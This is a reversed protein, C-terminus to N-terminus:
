RTPAGPEAKRLVSQLRGKFVSTNVFVLLTESGAKSNDGATQGDYGIEQKMVMTKGLPIVGDNTTELEHKIIQMSPVGAVPEGSEYSLKLHVTSDMQLEPKIHLILGTQNRGGAPGPRPIAAVVEVGNTTLFSASRLFDVEPHQAVLDRFEKSAPNMMGLANLLDSESAAKDTPVKLFATAIIVPSANTVATANRAPLRPSNESFVVTAAGGALLVTLVVGAAFKMKLWTMSKMTAKVLTSTSVAAISGKAIAVTSVTIALGMPAPQVSDGAIAGAIMASTSNAGRKSFYVRLKELARAVRKEAAAEGAGLADGVERLSKGEYFRLLIARRDKESLSAVASDLMPAIKVRLEQEPVDLVTQMDHAEQERRHRRMESRLFNNATLRTTQFLWSSLAKDSRLQEAKRALIIFVAQTVEEAGSPNGVSRMAVSYVFNVHKAVLAAFAEESHNEAFEGLLVGDDTSQMPQM